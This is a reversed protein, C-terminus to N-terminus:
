ADMNLAKQIMQDATSIVKSNSDYMRQMIILDTLGVQIQYNSNELKHNVLTAGLVNNGDLDASESEKIGDKLDLIHSIKEVRDPYKIYSDEIHQSEHYINGFEEDEDLVNITVKSYPGIKNHLNIARLTLNYVKKDEYDLEEDALTIMGTIPSIVFKEAGEGYLKIEKIKSLSSSNIDTRLFTIAQFNMYTSNEQIYFVVDNAVPVDMCNVQIVVDVKNSEGYSNKAVAMLNYKSANICDLVTTKNTTILGTKDINFNKYGAGSLEFSLLEAGGLSDIKVKAIPYNQKGTKDIDVNVLVDSISPASKSDTLTFKYNEDGCGSFFISILFLIIYFRM